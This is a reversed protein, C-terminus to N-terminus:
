AFVTHGPCLYCLQEKSSFAYSLQPTGGVLGVDVYAHIKVAVAMAGNVCSQSEEIVHQFLYAFVAHYVQSNIAVAVEVNVLMVRNFVSGDHYAFTKAFRQTVFTTYLTISVSERHVITEAM